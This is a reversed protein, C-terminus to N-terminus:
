GGNQMLGTLKQMLEPNQMLAAMAEPSAAAAAPAPQAQPAPAPTAAPAPQAAPAPTGMVAQDTQGRYEVSVMKKPIPGKGPEDHTRVLRVWAGIEIVKGGNNRIQRSLEKQWEPKFYVKRRGDDDDDERLNTQITLVLQPIPKGSDKFYKYVPAANKDDSYEREHVTDKGVITGEVRDGINSLRVSKVGGGFLLADADPLQVQDNTM